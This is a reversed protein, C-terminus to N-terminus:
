IHVVEALETKFLAITTGIALGVVQSVSGGGVLHTMSGSVTSSLYLISGNTWAFNSNDMVGYILFTGSAGNAITANAIVLAASTLLTNARAKVAFGSSDIRCVDGRGLNEGATLTITIGSSTNTSPAANFSSPGTAGTNGQPGTPGTTGQAGTPGTTGQPGTPGTTGQAGTAGTNGQPGTPGTNGVGAGTPGQSGTAGTAGAGTAGTAGAPGTAGTIGAGTAGTAGQAGTPGTAGLSGTAGTQGPNGLPGTPGTPGIPGTIGQPGAVEFPVIRRELIGKRKLYPM